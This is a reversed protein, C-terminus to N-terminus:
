HHPQRPRHLVGERRLGTGGGLGRAAAAGEAADDGTGAAGGWAAGREAATASGPNPGPRASPSSRLPASRPRAPGAACLLAGPPPPEECAPGAAPTPSPPPAPGPPAPRSLGRFVSRLSEVGRPGVGAGSRRRPGGVSGRGPVGGERGRGQARPVPPASLAGQQFPPPRASGSRPRPGPAPPAARPIGARARCGADATRRRAAPWRGVATQARRLDGRVHACAAEISRLSWGGM